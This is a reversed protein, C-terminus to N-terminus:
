DKRPGPDRLLWFGGDTYDCGLYPEDFMGEISFYRDFDYALREALEPISLESDASELVEIADLRWFDIIESLSIFLYKIEYDLPDYSVTNVIFARILFLNKAKLIGQRQNIMLELNNLEDKQFYNDAKVLGGDRELYAKITDLKQEFDM